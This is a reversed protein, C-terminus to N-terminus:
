AAPIAQILLRALSVASSVTAPSEAARGELIM